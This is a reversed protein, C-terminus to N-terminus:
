RCANYHSGKNKYMYVSVHHYKGHNRGDHPPSVAHWRCVCTCGKWFLTTQPQHGVAEQVTHYSHQSKATIVKSAVIKAWCLIRYNIPSSQICIKLLDCNKKITCSCLYMSEACEMIYLVTFRIFHMYLICLVSGALSHM